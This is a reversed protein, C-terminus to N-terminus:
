LKSSGKNIIEDKTKSEFILNLKVYGSDNNNQSVYDYILKHNNSFVTEFFESHITEIYTALIVIMQNSYNDISHEIGEQIVKIFNEKHISDEIAIIEIDGSKSHYLERKHAHKTFADKDNVFILLDYYANSTNLLKLVWKGIDFSNM